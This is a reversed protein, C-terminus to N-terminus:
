PEEAPQVVEHEGAYSGPVVGQLLVAVEQTGEYAVTKHLRIFHLARPHEKRAKEAGRLEEVDILQVDDLETRAGAEIEDPVAVAVFVRGALPPELVCRQREATLLSTRNRRLQQLEGRAHPTMDPDVALGDVDLYPRAHEQHFAEDPAVLGLPEPPEVGCDLRHARARRLENLTIDGVLQWAHELIPRAGM